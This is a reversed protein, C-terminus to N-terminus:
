GLEGQAAQVGGRPPGDPEGIDNAQAKQTIKPKVRREPSPPAEPESPTPVSTSQSRPRIAPAHRARREGEVVDQPLEGMLARARAAAQTMQRLDDRTVGTYRWATVLQFTRRIARGAGNLMEQAKDRDILGVHRATLVTRALEDYDAILYAGMYGYPNSFRLPVEIPQLSYALDVRVGDMGSLIRRLEKAKEQIFARATQLEDEIRLLTVDAYPDDQEAALWLMRMRNGFALLGVIATTGGDATGSRGTVLKQAQRTQVCLVADSRLPAPSPSEQRAIPRDPTTPTTM